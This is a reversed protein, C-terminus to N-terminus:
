HVGYRRLKSQLTTRPIDLMRAAQSVNGKAISLVKRLHAATAGDLSLAEAKAGNGSAGPQPFSRPSVLGAPLIAVDAAPFSSGSWGSLSGNAGGNHGSGMVEANSHSHGNGNSSGHGNSNSHGNVDAHFVRHAHDNGDAGRAAPLAALVPLCAGRVRGRLPDVRRPLPLSEIRGSCAAAAGRLVLNRLERVNGPFSYDELSRLAGSV